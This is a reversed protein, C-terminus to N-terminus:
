GSRVQVLVDDFQSELGGAVDDTLQTSNQMEILKLKITMDDVDDEEEEEIKTSIRGKRRRGRRSRRRTFGKEELEKHNEAIEM